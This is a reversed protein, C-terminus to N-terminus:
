LARGYIPSIFIAICSDTIKQIGCVSAILSLYIRELTNNILVNRSAIFIWGSKLVNCKGGYVM